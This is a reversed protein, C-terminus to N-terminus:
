ISMRQGPKCNQSKGSAIEPEPDGEESVDCQTENVVAEMHKEGYTRPSWPVVLMRSNTEQPYNRTNDDRIVICDKANGAQEKLIRIRFTTLRRIIFIRNISRDVKVPARSHFLGQM